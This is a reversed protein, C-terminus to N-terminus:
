FVIVLVGFFLFGSSIVYGAVLVGFIETLLWLWDYNAVATCFITQLESCVIDDGLKKLNRQVSSVEKLLKSGDTFERNEKLM